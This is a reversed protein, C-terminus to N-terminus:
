QKEGNVIVTEVRGKIIWYSLHEPFHKCHTQGFDVGPQGHAEVRFSTGCGDTATSVSLVLPLQVGDLSVGHALNLRTEVRLEKFTKTGM